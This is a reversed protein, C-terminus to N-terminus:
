FNKVVHRGALPQLPRANEHETQLANIQAESATIHARMVIWTVGESCAPTTLSGSYSYFELINSPLLRKPNFNANAKRSTCYDNPRLAVISTLAPNEAGRDILVGIVILKGSKMKHVLHLEAAAHHGDIAHESHVHFHYQVLAAEEAGFHITGTAAPVKIEHSTNQVVLPAENYAIALAPVTGKKASGLDIPSQQLGADCAAWEADMQGWRDPGNSADYGWKAPCDAFASTAVLLLAAAVFTRMNVLRCRSRRLAPAGAQMAPQGPPTSADGGV